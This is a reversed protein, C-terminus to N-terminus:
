EKASLLRHSPRARDPEDLSGASRPPPQADYKREVYTLASLLDRSTMRRRESVEAVGGIPMAGIDSWRLWGDDDLYSLARRPNDPHLCFPVDLVGREFALVLASGIDPHLGLVAEVLARAEALVQNGVARPPSSPGPEVSAAAASELADVNEEVTPIRLSEAATKVILRAAGSRKALRAASEGLLRAGHPTRPFVGMYTYVTIHWDVDGLLEGALAALAAVALEDQGPHTQQAYSLSISRMGHERFFLGELLSLAVLLGPPCLQGMMCGGFVELHPEADSRRGDALMECSEGWARVSDRLPSRGYPLCYSVPGGETADLGSMILARFIEQPRASGHRVQVPFTDDRIGDLVARTVDPGHAVIPYGNLEDGRAVAAMASRDDGTRTFSDLTITGATTAAANRTALLGRRMAAPSSFGMRPQVVLEGRRRAAHVFSGFSGAALPGRPPRGAPIPSEQAV